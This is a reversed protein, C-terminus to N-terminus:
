ADNIEDGVPVEPSLARLAAHLRAALASADASSRLLAEFEEALSVVDSDTLGAIAQVRDPRRARVSRERAAAAALASRFMAAPKLALTSRAAPKQM